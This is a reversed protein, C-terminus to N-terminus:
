ALGIKRKISHKVRYYRKHWVSQLPKNAWPTEKRYQLYLGKAPHLCRVSNPKEHTFHLIAVQSLEGRGNNNWKGDLPLFNGSLAINLADQDFFTLLTKKESVVSLSKASLQERNWNEVDFLLVGSNLTKTSPELDLRSAVEPVIGGSAALPFSKMDMTLLQRLSSLILIDADLYLIRAAQSGLLEPLLLRAYIARSWNSNTPLSSIKSLASATLDIFEIDTPLACQRINIKDQTRLNDCVVVIRCAEIEGNEVLSRVMVGALEVFRRDIVTVICTKSLLNEESLDQM